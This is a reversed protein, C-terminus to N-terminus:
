VAKNALFASNDSQRWILISGSVYVISLDLINPIDSKISQYTPAGLKRSSWQILDSTQLRGSSLLSRRAPLWSLLVRTGRRTDAFLSM